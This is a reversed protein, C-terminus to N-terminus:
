VKEVRVDYFDGWRAFDTVLAWVVEIPTDVVDTPCSLHTLAAAM